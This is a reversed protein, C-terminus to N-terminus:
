EPPTLGGWYNEPKCDENFYAECGKETQLRIFTWNALKKHGTAFEEPVDEIRKETKEPEYKNAIGVVTVRYTDKVLKQYNKLLSNCYNTDHLRRYLFQHTTSGDKVYFNMIALHDKPNIEACGFWVKDTPAEIEIFRDTLKKVEVSNRISCSSIM